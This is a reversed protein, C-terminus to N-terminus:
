CVSKSVPQMAHPCSAHFENEKVVSESSNVCYRFAQRFSSTGVTAIIPVDKILGTNM